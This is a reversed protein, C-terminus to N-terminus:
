SPRHFILFHFGENLFVKLIFKINLENSFSNPDNLILIFVGLMSLSIFEIAVAIINSIFLIWLSFKLKKNLLLSIKKLNQLM